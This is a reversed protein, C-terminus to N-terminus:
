QKDPDQNIPNSYTLRYDTHNRTGYTYEASLREGKGFMNPLSISSSLSGENNGISTHIGGGVSSYEEVDIVVKYSKFNKQSSDRDITVDVSSFCGLKVLRSRIDASKELLDLFNTTKFIESGIHKKVYDDDSRKLGTM